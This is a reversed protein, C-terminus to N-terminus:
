LLVPPRGGLGHSLNARREGDLGGFGAELAEGVVPFGGVWGHDAGPPLGPALEHREPLEGGLQASGGAGGVGCVAVAGSESSGDSVSAVEGVFLGGHFGVQRAAVALGLFRLLRVPLVLPQFVMRFM